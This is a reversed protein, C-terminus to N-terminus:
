ADPVSYSEFSTVERLHERFRVYDLNFPSRLHDWLEQFLLACPAFHQSTAGPKRSARQQHLKERFSKQAGANRWDRGHNYAGYAALAEMDHRRRGPFYRAAFADWALKEGIAADPPTPATGTEFASSTM